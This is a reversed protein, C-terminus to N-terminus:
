VERVRPDLSMYLCDACFNVLLIWLTFALFIGQLLPYDHSLVAEYSLRGIGPYAFVVEVLIARGTSTALRTGFFTAVPLLANRLIYRRRIVSEPLGKIEAMLVYPENRVLLLSSRVVLYASFFNSAMLILFPLAAHHVVDIASRLGTLDSFASYAGSLPFIPIKVSLLVLLLSGLVFPPASELLVGPLLVRWEGDDRTCYRIGFLVALAFSAILAGMAPFLTWPLRELILRGVPAKYGISWGLDGRALGALYSGFQAAVPRDLGYHKRIADVTQRDLQVPLSGSASSAEEVPNGPIVRPLFFNIALAAALVLLYSATRRLLYARM